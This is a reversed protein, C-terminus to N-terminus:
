IKYRCSLLSVDDTFPRFDSHNKLINILNSHLTQLSKTGSHAIMYNNIGEMGFQEEKRNEAEVAGDTYCLITSQNKLQLYGISLFPLPEFMGLGTTGTILQECENNNCVIPPPHGANVYTLVHTETNIIGIFLSIHKEGNAIEMVTSNLDSVLKHLTSFHKILAHLNAQFNSMLLAASVGKGSIDAVCFLLEKDNLMFYDYYDGGVEHHPLYSAFIEFSQHEPFAKPFLMTQMKAALEMEKRVGAQRLQEKAFRKNEHAVIIINTILQIFPLVDDNYNLDKNQYDGILVYALAHQKHFVPLITSFENLLKDKPSIDRPYKIESFVNIVDIEKLEPNAGYFLSCRWTHINGHDSTHRTFLLLKGIKLEDKLFHEYISLLEETKVNQNISQTIELVANLQLERLYLEAIIKNSLLLDRTVEEESAM